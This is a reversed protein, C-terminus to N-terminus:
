FDQHMPHIVMEDIIIHEPLDLLGAIREALADPQLAWTEERTGEKSDNFNTDIMGPM